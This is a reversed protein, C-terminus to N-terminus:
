QHSEGWTPMPLTRAIRETTAHREEDTKPRDVRVYSKVPTITTAQEIIDAPVNLALLKHPEVKRRPAPLVMQILTGDSLQERHPEPVTSGATLAENVRRADIDNLHAILAANCGVVKAEAAEREAIAADRDNCIQLLQTDSLMLM